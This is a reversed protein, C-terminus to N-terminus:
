AHRRGACRRLPLRAELTRGRAGIGVGVRCSLCMSVEVLIEPESVVAQAMRVARVWTRVEGRRWEARRESIMVATEQPAMEEGTIVSESARERGRRWAVRLSDSRMQGAMWPMMGRTDLDSAVM